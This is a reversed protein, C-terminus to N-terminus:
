TRPVLCGVWGQLQGAVRECARGAVGHEPINQALKPAEVVLRCLMLPLPKRRQPVAVVRGSEPPEVSRREPTDRELSLRTGHYYERFLKLHRHWAAEHVIAEERLISLV